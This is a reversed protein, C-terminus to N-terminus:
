AFFFVYAAYLRDLFTPLSPRTTLFTRTGLLPPLLTGSGSVLKLARLVRARFPFRFLVLMTRELSVSPAMANAMLRADRSYQHSHRPQLLGCGGVASFSRNRSSCSGSSNFFTSYPDLVRVRLRSLKTLGCPSVSTYITSTFGCHSLPSIPTGCFLM